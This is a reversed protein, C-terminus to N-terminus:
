FKVVNVATFGHTLLRYSMKAVDSLTGSFILFLNHPSQKAFASRISLLLNRFHDPLRRVVGQEPPEFEIGIRNQFVRFFDEIKLFQRTVGNGPKFPTKALIAIGSVNGKDGRDMIVVRLKGM